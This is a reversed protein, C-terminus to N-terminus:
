SVDFLHSNLVDDLEHDWSIIAGTIGSFFLFGATLLGAWRHLRGFIARMTKRESGAPRRQRSQRYRNQHRARVCAIAPRSLFQTLVEGSSHAARAAFASM